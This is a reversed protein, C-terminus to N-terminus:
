NLSPCRHKGTGCRESLLDTLAHKEPRKRGDDQDLVLFLLVYSMECCLGYECDIVGEVVLSAVDSHDSTHRRLHV